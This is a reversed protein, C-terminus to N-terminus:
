VTISYKAYLGSKKMAQRARQGKFSNVMYTGACFTFAYILNPTQLVPLKIKNRSAQFITYLFLPLSVALSISYENNKRVAPISMMMKYDSKILDPHGLFQAMPELKKKNYRKIYEERAKKEDFSSFDAVTLEDNKELIVQLLFKDLYPKFLEDNGKNETNNEPEKYEYNYSITNNEPEKYEYNNSMTNQDSEKYEFSNSM